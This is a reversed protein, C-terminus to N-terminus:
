DKCDQSAEWQTKWDDYLDVALQFWAKLEHPYMVEAEWLRVTTYKGMNPLQRDWVKKFVKKKWFFFWRVEIEKYIVTEAYTFGIQQYRVDYVNGTKAIIKM